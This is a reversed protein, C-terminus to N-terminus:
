DKASLWLEVALGVGVLAVLLRLLGPPVRRTVRPGISSGIFLGAGMALVPRWDVPGATAVVAASTLTAAGLLMNKLANATPLHPETTILLLALLMVGSGAGFYGSYLSMGVLGLPLVVRRAGRPGGLQQQRASLWPQALLALSGALVLFPVVYAFVGPPTALLLVSGAPGGVAAVPVWRRLWPGKGALEPRSALASGPWCAVLAVINAVNATLPALGAALLAPYSVLSTIGGAGGVLGALAGAGTLLALGGGGTM